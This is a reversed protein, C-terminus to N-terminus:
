RCRQDTRNPGPRSEGRYGAFDRSPPIPVAPCLRRPLSAPRRESRPHSRFPDGFDPRAEPSRAYTKEVCLSSKSLIPATPEFRTPSYGAAYRKLWSMMGGAFNTVNAVAGSWIVASIHRSRTRWAPTSQASWGPSVIPKMPTVAAGTRRIVRGRSASRALRARSAWSPRLYRSRASSRPPSSRRSRRARPPKKRQRRSLTTSLRGTRRRQGTESDRQRWRAKAPYRPATGMGSDGDRRRPVERSKAPYRPATQTGGEARASGDLEGEHIHAKQSM